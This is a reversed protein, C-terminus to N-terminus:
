KVFNANLLYDASLKARDFTSGEPFFPEIEVIFDKIGNAYGTEFIKQFNMMGSEGLVEVDKIHLIRIRDRHQKMYAVPCQDGIVAWYVDLQFEVLSPDTAEIIADFVMKGGDPPRRTRFPLRETGGPAVFRFEHEHNHFAFILGAAKAIKGAENFVAGVVAAEETSRVIPDGPQVIYKCGIAAHHDCAQKWTDKGQEFANLSYEGRIPLGVHTSTIKLGADDAFKKFEAMAVAGIRGEAANYGALEISTYGMQAVRRLGGAVDPALERGLSYIQLGFDKKVNSKSLASETAASLKNNAAWVGAVTMLSANRLFHRRNTM